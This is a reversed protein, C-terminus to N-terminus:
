SARDMFGLLWGVAATAKADSLRRILESAVRPPASNPMPDWRAKM